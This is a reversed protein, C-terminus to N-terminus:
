TAGAIMPIFIPEGDIQRGLHFVYRDILMKFRFATILIAIEAANLVLWMAAISGGAAVIVKLYPDHVMTSATVAMFGIAIPLGYPLIICLTAAFLSLGWKLMVEVTTLAYTFFSKM